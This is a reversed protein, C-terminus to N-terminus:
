KACGWRWSFPHLVFAAKGIVEKCPVFDWYRSDYSNPSNDGLVYFSNPPVKVTQGNSLNGSARYGPYRGKRGNNMAFAPSGEIIKGNRYLRGNLMKVEDSSQGVLRKIYYKQEGLKQINETRFIVSEGIKPRRFHYALRNVFLMDGALLEFRLVPMKAKFYFNTYVWFHREDYYVSDKLNGLMEDFSSFQPFFAALIADEFGFFEFPMRVSVDADGIRLSYLRYPKPFLFPLWLGFIERGYVTTFRIRGMKALPDEPSFLPIKLNGNSTATMEYFHAGEKFWNLTRYIFSPSKQNARYVQPRMGSFSPFMSGTPIRFLYFFFARIGIALIAAVLIVEINENWFNLPYVKGGIKTVFSKLEEHLKELDPQLRKQASDDTLKIWSKFNNELTKVSATLKNIQEASLVDKRYHYVKRSLHLLTKIKEKLIKGSKDM